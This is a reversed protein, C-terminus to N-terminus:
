FDNVIAGIIEAGTIEIQSRIDGIDKLKSHNLRSVLLAGGTKEVISQTDANTKASPTDILVVDYTQKLLRMLYNFSARGLLEQPNPPITGASLVSLDQIDEVDTIAELGSRGVIVDSLGVNSQINFIAHQRPKRMNADVVLTRAGLQSFVVALNATLYSVGEGQDASFLALSKNGQKFWRMMLQSRLARYSEVQDSFPEYAAVLDKSFNGQGAQLYHYNFQMAVVQQVDASNILGLQMAADGFLMGEKQQLDLIKNTDEPDIKGLELLIRGIKSVRSPNTTISNSTSNMSTM